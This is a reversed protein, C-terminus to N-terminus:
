ITITTGEVSAVCVVKSGREKLLNKAFKLKAAIESDFQDPDHHFLCLQKVNAKDAVDVVRSVASHGWGIKKLYEEDTYTADIVLVDADKIFNILKDVDFQNYHPSDELYLENDTVYCFTKNKYSVRYGLCKGPHNLLITSIELNDINFTEECLNKFTIQAGFEKMTIPFYVSDMQDALLKEIGIDSHRTGLIEFANGKMYLPVFFPIGNIHDYHPHSIFIKATLPFKNEKLLHNSLEKIGTGADFIFFYKNGITLTVCNTNGGFKITKEGPVPLTGRSGWFHIAMTSSHIAAIEDVFTEANIPKNLYGDVGLELAKRQDYEFVKATVIIFTPQKLSKTKRISQFLDLGDIGPMSLDCMICDPEQKKIEELAYLSSTTSTVRHGAKKLLSAYIELTAKDDDIIYFHIKKQM